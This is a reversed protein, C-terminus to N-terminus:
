WTHKVPVRKAMEEILINLGEWRERRYVPVWLPFFALPLASRGRVWVYSIGTTRLSYVRVRSIRDWPVSKFSVLRRFSLDQPTITVEVVLWFYNLAAGMIPIAGLALTGHWYAEQRSWLYIGFCGILLLILSVLSLLPGREVIAGLFDRRGTSGDTFSYVSRTEDRDPSSDAVNEIRGCM